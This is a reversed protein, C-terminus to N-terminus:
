ARRTAVMKAKVKRTPSRIHPGELRRAEEEEARKKPPDEELSKNRAEEEKLSLEKAEERKEEGKEPNWGGDQCDIATTYATWPIAAYLITNGNGEAASDPNIDGHYSCFSSKYDKYSAPEKPSVPEVPRTPATPAVPEPEADPKGESEDKEKAEKYLQKEATYKTLEKGYKALEENYKPLLVKEYKEKEEPYHRKAEEYNTIEATTGPFDSCHGEPGGKDLCVTVEPPTILYIFPAWARPSITPRSLSQLQERLQADTLCLNM